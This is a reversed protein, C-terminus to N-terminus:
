ETITTQNGIALAFIGGGWDTGTAYPNTDTIFNSCDGNPTCVALMKGSSVPTARGITTFNGGVYIRKSVSDAGSYVIGEIYGNADNSANLANSCVSSSGNNTVQIMQYVPGNSSSTYYASGITHPITTASLSGATLTMSPNSSPLALPKQTVINPTSISLIRDHLVGQDSQISIVADGAETTDKVVLRLTCTAGPEVTPCISSSVGTPLQDATLHTLASDIIQPLLM